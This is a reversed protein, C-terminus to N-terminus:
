RANRVGNVASPNAAVGLGIKAEYTLSHTPAINVTSQATLLSHAALTTDVMSHGLASPSGSHATLHNLVADAITRYAM